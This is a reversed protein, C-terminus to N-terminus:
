SPRWGTKRTRCFSESARNQKIFDFLQSAGLTERRSSVPPYPVFTGRPEGPCLSTRVGNALERSLCGGSWHGEPRSPANGM